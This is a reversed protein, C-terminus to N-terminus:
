KQESKNHFDQKLQQCQQEAKKFTDQSKHQTYNLIACNQFTSGRKVMGTALLAWAVVNTSIQQCLLVLEFHM